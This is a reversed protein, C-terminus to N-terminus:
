ALRMLVEATHLGLGALGGILAGNFRIYQLDRGVNLEIMHILQDVQWSKVQDAVFRSIGSKQNAVFARLVTVMGENIDARISRDESLKGGIEVLLDTLAGRVISSPSQTEQEIFGRVSEWIGEALTRIEPRALLDKRLGDLRQAYDPSTRLKDIFAAIFRDFEGRVAHSEDARVEDLFASVSTVLKRLVYADAQFLRFLTPLENRIKDRIADLAEANSLLQGLAVLLEDLIRQHRRDHTVADLLGAALPAIEVTELREVVRKALFGRLGSGEMANLAQPLLRLMFRALDDSQRRDALWDAVMAAFDVERLKAAVPQDALFHREIFEGLSDAIRAQNRPVIATHPIPLGLPRRFLAVVAYWDALGGIAAAEAFAALFAFGPHYREAYRAGALVLLCVVLLGTAAARTRRLERLRLADRAGDTTLAITM